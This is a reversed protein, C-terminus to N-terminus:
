SIRPCSGFNCHEFHISLLSKFFIPTGCKYRDLKNPAMVKYNICKMWNMRLYAVMFAESAEAM